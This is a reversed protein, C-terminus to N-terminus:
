ESLTPTAMARSGNGAPGTDRNGTGRERCSRGRHRGRVTVGVGPQQAGGIGAAGDPQRSPHSATAVVTAHHEDVQAVGRAAGLDDAVGLLLGLEGFDEVPEAGSYQMATVPM